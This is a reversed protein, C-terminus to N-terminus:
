ELDPFQLTTVNVGTFIEITRLILFAVTMIVIGVIAQTLTGRASELKKQDGAAFLFNFGGVLLMVFLGVAGLSVVVRIVNSILPVICTIQAVGAAAGSTDVCSDM